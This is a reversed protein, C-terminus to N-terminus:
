RADLMRLHDLAFRNTPELSVATEWAQRAKAANGELAYATGL